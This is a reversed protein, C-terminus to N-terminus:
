DNEAEKMKVKKEKMLNHLEIVASCDEKLDQVAKNLYLSFNSYMWNGLVSYDVSFGLKDAIEKVAAIESKIERSKRAIEGSISILNDLSLVMDNEGDADVRTESDSVYNYDIKRNYCILRMVPISLNAVEVTKMYIQFTYEESSSYVWRGAQDISFEKCNNKFYDEVQKETIVM